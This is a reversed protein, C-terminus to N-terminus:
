PMASRKWRDMSCTIQGPVVVLAKPEPLEAFFAEMYALPCLEDREGQVSSKAKTSTSVESFDYMRLAPAIGIM